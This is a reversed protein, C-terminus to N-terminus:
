RMHSQSDPLLLLGKLTFINPASVSRLQHSFSVQNLHRLETSQDKYGSRVVLRYDGDSLEKQILLVARHVRLVQSFGLEQFSHSRGFKLIEM